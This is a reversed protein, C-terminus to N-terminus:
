TVCLRRACYRVTSQGARPPPNGQVVCFSLSMSIILASRGSGAHITAFTAQTAPLELSTL